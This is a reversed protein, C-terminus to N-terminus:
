EFGKGRATLSHFILPIETPYDPAHQLCRNHSLLKPGPSMESAKKIGEIMGGQNSAAEEARRQYQARLWRM